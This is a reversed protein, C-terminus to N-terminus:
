SDNVVDKIVIFLKGKKLAERAEKEFKALAERSRAVGNKTPTMGILICGESDLATNGAHILIGEHTKVNVLRLMNKKFRPSYTDIIEYTGAPIATEGKVKGVVKGQPTIYMNPRVEDEVTHYTSAGTILLGLTFGASLVYRNLYFKTNM